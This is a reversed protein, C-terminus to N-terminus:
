ETAAGRHHDLNAMTLAMVDVDEDIVCLDHAKKVRRFGIQDERGHRGFVRSVTGTKLLESKSIQTFDVEDNGAVQSGIREHGPRDLTPIDLELCDRFNDCLLDIM